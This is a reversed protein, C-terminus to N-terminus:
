NNTSRLGLSKILDRYSTDQEALFKKAQEGKLFKIAAGADRMGDVFRPDSTAKEVADALIEITAPPTGKPVFVGHFAGIVLDIGNERFTPLGAYLPSRSESAIALIRLKGAEVLSQYSIPVAFHAEIHNGALAVAGETDGKFPVNITKIGAAQSLGAAFV